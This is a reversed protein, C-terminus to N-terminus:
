GSHHARGGVRARVRVEHCIICGLDQPIIRVRQTEVRGGQRALEHGEPFDAQWRRNNSRDDAVRRPAQRSSCLRQAVPDRSEFLRERGDRQLAQQSLGWAEQLLLDYGPVLRPPPNSAESVINSGPLESTNVRYKRKHGPSRPKSSTSVFECHCASAGALECSM